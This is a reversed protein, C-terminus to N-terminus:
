GQWGTVQDINTFRLTELAGQLHKGFCRPLLHPAPLQCAALSRNLGPDERQGPCKRSYTACPLKVM